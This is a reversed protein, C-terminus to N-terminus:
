KVLVGTAWMSPDSNWGLDDNVSLHQAGLVTDKIKYFVGIRPHEAPNWGNLCAAPIAAELFYRTREIRTAVRVQSLDPKPPPEKARSMRHLGVIPSKGGPGGGLPLFYFLHCFRTARKVDRADRTDICLRVGDGKWWHETDVKIAGRRNPVAYAFYFADDDWAWYVEAFPPTHDLEVLPPALLDFGWKAANGDMRLAKPARWIPIEFRFFARRCILELM